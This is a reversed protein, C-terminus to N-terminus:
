RGGFFLELVPGHYNLGVKVTSMTLDLENVPPVGTHSYKDKGFDAYLYEVKASWVPNISYEIGGGATWGVQYAKVTSNTVGGATEQIKQQSYALGGTGYFLTRDVAYGLRARVTGFVDIKATIPFAGPSTSGNDKLSAYSSDTELGFVWSPAFQWNYGTQIGGFGGSPTLKSTQVNFGDSYSADSWAYGAHAGIYSGTWLPRSVVGKVPIASPSEVPAGFRYNIGARVINLSLDNSSESLGAALFRTSKGLDAYLYELKVSWQPDLAYELGAGATWGVQYGDVNRLGALGVDNTSWALGGTVYILTRDFAYGLRTRATGFTDIKVNGPIAGPSSLVSDKIRGWSIDFETGLVWNNSFHRNYGIQLGGLGGSPSFKSSQSALLSGEFLNDTGWTYGAHAGVYMGGWSFPAVARYVPGKAPLDTAIASGASLFVFAATGLLIKKM